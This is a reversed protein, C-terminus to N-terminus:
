QSSKLFFRQDHYDDTGDLADVDAIRFLNEASMKRSSCSSDGVEAEALRMRKVPIDVDEWKKKRPTERKRKQDVLRRLLLRRRRDAAREFGNRMENVEVYM